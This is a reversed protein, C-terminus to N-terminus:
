ADLRELRKEAIERTARAYLEDSSADPYLHGLQEYRERIKALYLLARREVEERYITNDFRLRTM